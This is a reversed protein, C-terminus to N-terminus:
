RKLIKVKKTSGDKRELVVVYMGNQLTQLSVASGPNKLKMIEQGSITYISLQKVNEYGRIFLQNSVPNPSLVLANNEPATQQQINQTALRASLNDTITFYNINFGGTTTAIGISYTGAPLTVNHAVNTWTQWGGTNPITVSGLQTAGADKELRLTMNSNPSAVRYIIRYTGATPITVDYSMWDGADIYGVSQGGGVDTTTELQVGSMYTYSEAQIVNSVTANTEVKLSSALDNWSDDVLCADEGTKVLTAGGFNDDNYLTVKYGANVKISSIDDNLIGLANLQSLTYTGPNLGVAYGAYNCDKYVTAVGSNTLGAYGGITITARVPSSANITSSKDFVDDYCFSYTLSNYSIDSQHWFKCYWNYPSTVYYKSDTAFDQTAGVAQNLDIAHRNIAACIQAQVVKDWQGGSALVGSGEMVETNTPKATITGVQGDSARTFTFVNGSVRGSWTGADGASFVLNGSSYKSWIADVYSSFYSAQAGGTQFPATKSPFKIIGNTADYCGAFATPASSQWQALIQAHTKLEGVKKYFGSNGWVELGMPYQYSDVRTTNAWLGNSANTLEIMEYRIGQNPDTPNALNPAAYGSPSGSAGFFYLYLQTNFSILIRCGAIGPINIIKNPIESLKAFCNAYLANGGPGQNGGIVPGAVTNDSANMLRVTGTKTDIWVHNGNVIGVVAVYVNADAYTSNNSLTFPVTTQSWSSSNTLLSFVLLLMLRSRKLFAPLPFPKNKTEM